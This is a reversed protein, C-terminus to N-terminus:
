RQIDLKGWYPDSLKGHVFLFRSGDIECEKYGCNELKEKLYKVSENTLVKQTYKLVTRGRDTAFRTPDGGFVSYEHNGWLSVLIPIDINKLQEIIENPRPGYNVMDGLSCLVDVQYNRNQLDTLVAKLATLNGHIDSLLLLRM